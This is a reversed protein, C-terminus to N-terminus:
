GGRKMVCSAGILVRQLSEAFNGVPLEFPYLLVVEVMERDGTKLRLITDYDDKNETYFVVKAGDYGNNTVYQRVVPIVYKEFNTETGLDPDCAPKICHSNDGGSPNKALIRAGEYAAGYLVMQLNFGQAIVTVGALMIFLFPVVFAFEVFSQGQESRRTIRRGHRRLPYGTLTRM